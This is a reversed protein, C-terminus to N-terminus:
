QNHSIHNNTVISILQQEKQFSNCCNLVVQTVGAPNSMYLYEWTIFVHQYVILGKITDTM